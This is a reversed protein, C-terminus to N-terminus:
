QKYHQLSAERPLWHCQPSGGRLLAIELSERPASVQVEFRWQHSPMAAPTSAALLVAACKPSVQVDDDVGIDSTEEAKYGRCVVTFILLLLSVVKMRVSTAKRAQPNAYQKTYM